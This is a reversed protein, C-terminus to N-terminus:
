AQIAQTTLFRLNSLDQVQSFGFVVALRFPYLLLIANLSMGSYEYTLAESLKLWLLKKCYILIFVSVCNTLIYLSLLRPVSLELHSTNM